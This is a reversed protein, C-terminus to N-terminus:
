NIALLASLAKEAKYTFSRRKMEKGLKNGMAGALGVRPGRPHHGVNRARVAQRCTVSVQSWFPAGPRFRPSCRQARREPVM